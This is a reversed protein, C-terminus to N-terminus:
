KRGKPKKTPNSQTAQNAEFKEVESRLIRFRCRKSGKATLTFAKLDGRLVIARVVSYQTGWRAAVERITMTANRPEVIPQSM